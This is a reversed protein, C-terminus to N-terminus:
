YPYIIDATLFGKTGAPSIYSDLRIAAHTGDKLRLIYVKDSTSYVPPPNSFDMVVWKSLVENVTINQYGVRFGMMEKLDTIVQTTSWADKTFDMHKFQESSEPLENLSAYSTEFASGDNTRVDFHHIAMDWVEADQQADTKITKFPTYKSGEVLNYTWGSRGDWEGTLTKPVPKRELTRNHLDIYIWEEYSTADLMLRFRNSQAGPHFGEEFTDDVPADDYIGEFLGDCSHLFSLAFVAALGFLIKFFNTKM